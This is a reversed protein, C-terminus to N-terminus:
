KRLRYSVTVTLYVPVPRGELTAPRYQWRAIAEMGVMDLIPYSSKQLRVERVCGTPAIIAEYISVGEQLQKRAEVPYFPEV